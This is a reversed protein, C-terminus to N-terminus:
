SKLSAFFFFFINVSLTRNLLVKECWFYFVFLKNSPNLCVVVVFLDRFIHITDIPDEYYSDVPSIIYFDRCNAGKLASSIVRGEDTERTHM